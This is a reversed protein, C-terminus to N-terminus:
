CLANLEVHGTKKKCANKVSNPFFTVFNVIVLLDDSKEEKINSRLLLKISDILDFKLIIFLNIIKFADIVNGLM